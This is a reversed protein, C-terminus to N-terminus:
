EKEKFQMPLIYKSPVPRQPVEDESFRVLFDRTKKRRAPTSIVTAPYLCTTGPFLALVRQKSKISEDVDASLPLIKDAPVVYRAKTIGKTPSGNAGEADEVEYLETEPNYKLVTALIWDEQTSEDEDVKCLVAVESGTNLGEHTADPKIVRDSPGEIVDVSTTDEVVLEGGVDTGGANEIDVVTEEEVIGEVLQEVEMMDERQQPFGRLEALRSLTEVTISHLHAASEVATEYARLLKVIGRKSVMQDKQTLKEYFKQLRRFQPDHQQNAEIIRDFYTQLDTSLSACDDM